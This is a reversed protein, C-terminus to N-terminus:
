YDYSWFLGGGARADQGVETEVRVRPSVEVQLTAAGSNEAQGREFELYINDTIYKGVGVNAAGEEDTEVSIDDLGSLSRLTALPDFGGGGKGSFRQLARTLQVAQFPSIKSMDRGFLIRALVEDQPLSPTSDFAITPKEISGTLLVSATIEEAQTTAEIDLYPSPPISGQFRLNGTKLAFRKGFEEYRGRRTELNGNFQPDDGTGSVAIDGQFEADLGWGRVFVQNPASINIDIGLARGAENKEEARIINLEPISSQFREPIIIDLRKVLVDGSLMLGEPRGGMKLAADFIGDAREAQLLHFATMNIDIDTRNIDKIGFIGKGTLRGNEGDNANLSLLTATDQDFNLRADIDSVAIGNNSETYRGDRLEATGKITPVSLIGAIDGKAQLRGGATMNAPLFATILSSIELDAVFAGSLPADEKMELSLPLLSLGVPMQAKGTLKNIGAGSGKMDVSAMGNEHRALITIVGAKYSAAELGTIRMDALTVPADLPGTMKIDGSVRMSSANEPVGLPLDTFRLDKTTLEVDVGNADVNGMMNIRSRGMTVQMAIDRLAPISADLDSIRTSATVNFDKQYTGKAKIDLDYSEDEAMTIDATARKLILEDYQGNDIVLSARVNQRDNANALNLSVEAKGRANINFLSAYYSADEIRANINGDAISTATDYAIGGKITVHPATGEIPDLRWVTTDKQLRANMVVPQGKYATNLVLTGGIGDEKPLSTVDLRIDDIEKKNASQALGQAEFLPQRASGNLQASLTARHLKEGTLAELNDYHGELTYSLVGDQYWSGKGKGVLAYNQGTLKLTNVALDLKSPILHLSTYFRQPLAKNEFHPKIDLKLGIRQGLTIDAYLRPALRLPREANGTNVTIRHFAMQEITARRIFLSPMDFPKLETSSATKEEPSEPLRVVNLDGGLLSVDIHGLALKWVSFPLWLKDLTAITGDADAIRINRANFGRVPDYGLTEAQIEFGAQDGLASIAKNIQEHGFSTAMWLGLGMLAVHVLAIVSLIMAATVVAIKGLIRM